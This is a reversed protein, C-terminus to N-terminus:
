RFLAINSALWNGSEGVASYNDKGKAFEVGVQPHKGESLKRVVRGEVQYVSTGGPLSFNLTCWLDEELDGDAALCCGDRSLNVLAGQFSEVAEGPANGRRLEVKAPVFLNMREAKRLDLTEVQEPVSLLYFTGAREVKEMVRSWFGIVHGEVSARLILEEGVEPEFGEFGGAILCDGSISGYLMGAHRGEEERGPREVTLAINRTLKM